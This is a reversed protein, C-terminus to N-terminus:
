RHGEKDQIIMLVPIFHSRKLSEERFNHLSVRYCTNSNQSSQCKTFAPPHQLATATCATSGSFPVVQRDSAPCPCPHSWGPKPQPQGHAGASPCLRASSWALQQWCQRHPAPALSRAPLKGTNWLSPASLLLKFFAEWSDFVFPSHSATLPLSPIPGHSPPSHPPHTCPAPAAAAALCPLFLFSFCVSHAKRIRDPSGRVELFANELRLPEAPLPATWMKGSMQLM